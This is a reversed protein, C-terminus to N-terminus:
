PESTIGLQAGLYRREFNNPDLAAPQFPPTVSIKVHFPGGPTPIPFTRAKSCSDVIWGRRATVRDIM